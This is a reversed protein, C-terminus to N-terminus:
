YFCGRSSSWIKKQPLVHELLITFSEWSCIIRPKLPPQTLTQIHRKLKANTKLYLDDNRENKGQKEKGM